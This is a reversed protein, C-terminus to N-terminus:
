IENHSRNKHSALGRASGFEAGCIDCIFTEGALPATDEVDPTPEDPTADPDANDVAPPTEVTPASVRQVVPAGEIEFIGTIDNPEVIIMRDLDTTGFPVVYIDYLRKEGVIERVVMKQVNPTLNKIKM